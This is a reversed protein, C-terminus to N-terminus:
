LLHVLYLIGGIVGLSVLVFCLAKGWAQLQMRNDADMAVAGWSYISKKKKRSWSPLDTAFISKLVSTQDGDDACVTANEMTIIAKVAALADRVSCTIREIPM